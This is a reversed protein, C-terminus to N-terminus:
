YFEVQDYLQRCKHAQSPWPQLCMENVASAIAADLFENDQSPPQLGPFLDSMISRFIPLDESLFKPLNADQLSHMLIHSEAREDIHM